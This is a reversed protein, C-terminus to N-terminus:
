NNYGNVKGVKYLEKDLIEGFLLEDDRIKHHKTESNCKPCRCFRENREKSFSMIGVMQMYCNKCVQM